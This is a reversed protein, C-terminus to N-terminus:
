ECLILNLGPMLDQSLGASRVDLIDDLPEVRRLVQEYRLEALAHALGGFVHRRKLIGARKRCVRADGAEPRKGTRASWWDTLM